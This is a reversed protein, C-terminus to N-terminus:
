IFILGLCKLWNYSLKQQCCCGLRTMIILTIICENINILEKMQLKQWGLQKDLSHKEYWKTIVYIVFANGSSTGKSQFIYPVKWDNACIWYLPSVTECQWCRSLVHPILVNRSKWTHLCGSAAITQQSTVTWPFTAFGWMIVTLRSENM